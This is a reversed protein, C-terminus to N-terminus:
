PRTKVLLRKDNGIHLACVRKNSEGTAARDVTDAKYANGCVRGM